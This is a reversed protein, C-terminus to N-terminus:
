GFILNPLWLSLSPFAWLLGLALLEIVVFPWIGVFLSELTTDKGLVGKMAFVNLGVPPTISGIETMKLALVGFWIVDFHYAELIPVVIPLTLAYIGIPVMIMGLLFMVLLIGGMIVVPPMNMSHLLTTMETPLGTMALVRSYYLAGVNILFLMSTTSASARMEAYVDKKSRIGKLAYGLALVLLAGAAAAETSTFFGGYIGGLVCVAIVLVPWIGIVRARRERASLDKIADATSPVLDPHRIAKWSIYAAYICATLIGPVIGAAFLKGVSSQTFLAYIIFMLSPPIMSAFTGACAICAAAFAKDYGFRLMEPMALRGFIATVAISSGSIAGFAASSYCTAIGLGGPLRATLVSMCEYARSAFAGISALGGMFIFLPIAVWTPGDITHYLSSGLASLSSNFNGTLYATAFGSLIFSLAIPVGIIMCALLLGICFIGATLFDM